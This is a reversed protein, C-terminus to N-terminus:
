EFHAPHQLHWDTASQWAQTVQILKEEAFYNGVIQFGVPAGESTFGGPVCMAPNGTMNFPCTYRLIQMFQEDDLGFSAMQELTSGAIGTVPALIVDVQTFLKEVSGKLSARRLLLKQYDMASLTRGLKMFENLGPGFDDARSPYFEEHAVASEVARLPVWDNVAQGDDPFTIDVIEAGLDRFTELARNMVVATEKDALGIAWNRDLGIKLGKISENLRALYDPVPHHSNTPDNDDRGAIAQLIYALDEASRAMPGVTDLSAGM